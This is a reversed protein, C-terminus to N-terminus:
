GLVSASRRANSSRKPRVSKSSMCCGEVVQWSMLGPHMPNSSRLRVVSPSVSSTGCAQPGPTSPKSVGASAADAPRRSRLKRSSISSGPSTVMENEPGPPPSIFECGAVAEIENSAGDVRDDGHAVRLLVGVPRARRPREAELGPLVPEDNAAERVILGRHRM